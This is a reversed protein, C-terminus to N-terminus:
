SAKNQEIQRLAAEVVKDPAFGFKKLLDKLPASSGFTHMGIIEGSPGAYRDWGMVSGQEVSVRAKIRPPLVQDRYSKDQKEFLDWSPMSVVRAKIGRAKLDEYASVCLQVESGTGMLIVQPADSDALVYAGRAVGAASAYKTRDYVPLAQRSLALVAPNDKLNFIVKYAERVENADAPRLVVLGPIARLSALQEVPQHTPGDEGVGISDHTFVHFIPL